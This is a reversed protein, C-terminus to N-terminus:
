ADEPTIDVVDSPTDSGSITIAPAQTAGQLYINVQPTNGGGGGGDEQPTRGELGAAARLEKIATIRDAPKASPDRVITELAALSDELALAARARVRKRTSAVSVWEARAAAVRAAFEPDLELRRRTEPDVHNRSYCQDTDYVGMALDLILSDLQAAPLLEIAQMVDGM